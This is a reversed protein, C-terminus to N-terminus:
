VVYLAQGLRDKQIAPAKKMVHDEPARLLGDAPFRIDTHPGTGQHDKEYSTTGTKSSNPYLDKSLCCGFSQKIM